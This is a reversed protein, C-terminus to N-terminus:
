PQSLQASFEWRCCLGHKDYRPPLVLGRVRIASDFYDAYYKFITAEVEQCHRKERGTGEKELAELTPCRTVSLVARGKGDLEFSCGLNAFWPTAGLARALAPAGNGQIGLLRTLRDMEYKVLRRWVWLDLEVATDNDFRNMVSLYWFGDMAYSLRCYTKLLDILLPRPLDEPVLSAITRKNEECM